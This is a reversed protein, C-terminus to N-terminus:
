RFHSYAARLRDIQEDELLESVAELWEEFYGGDLTEAFGALLHEDAALLEHVVPDHIAALLLGFHPQRELEAM